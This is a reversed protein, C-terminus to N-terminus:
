PPSLPPVGRGRPPAGLGPPGGGAGVGGRPRAPPGGGGPPWPRPAGGGRPVLGAGGLGELGLDVTVVDPRSRAASEVAQFPDSTVDVVLDAAERLLHSQLDAVEDGPDGVSATSAM